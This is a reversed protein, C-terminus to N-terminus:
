PTSKYTCCLFVCARVDLYYDVAMNHACLSPICFLFLYIFFSFTNQCTHFSYLDTSLLLSLATSWSENGSQLLSCSVFGFFFVCVCKFLCVVAQTCSLFVIPVSLCSPLHSTFTCATNRQCISTIM